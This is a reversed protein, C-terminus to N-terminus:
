VTFTINKKKGIDSARERRKEKIKKKMETRYCDSCVGDCVGSACRGPLARREERVNILM